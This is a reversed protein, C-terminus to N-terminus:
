ASTLRMRRVYASAGVFLAAGLAAGIGVGADGWDFGSGGSVSKASVSSKAQSAQWSSLQEPAVLAGGIQVLRPSSVDGAHSQWSSVQEPAVMEGGIQVSRAAGAAPVAVAAAIAAAAVVRLRLQVTM